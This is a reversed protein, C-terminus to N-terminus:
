GRISYRGKAFVVGGGEVPAKWPVTTPPLVGPLNRVLTHHLLMGGGYLGGGVGAKVLDPNKLLIGIATVAAPTLAGTIWDDLPPIQDPFIPFQTFPFRGSWYATDKAWISELVGDFAATGAAGVGLDTLAKLPDAGEGLLRLFDAMIDAM